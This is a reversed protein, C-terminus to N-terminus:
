PQATALSYPPQASQWDERTTGPLNPKVHFATKIITAVM